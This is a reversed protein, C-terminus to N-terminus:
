MYNSDNSICDRMSLRASFCTTVKYEYCKFGCLLMGTHWWCFVIYLLLQSNSQQKLSMRFVYAIKIILERCFSSDECWGFIPTLKAFFVLSKKTVKVVHCVPASNLSTFLSLPNFMCTDKWKQVTCNITRYMSLENNGHHWDNWRKLSLKMAHWQRSSPLKKIKHWLLRSFLFM